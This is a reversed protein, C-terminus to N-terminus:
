LGSDFTSRKYKELSFNTFLINPSEKFANNENSWDNSLCVLMNRLVEQEELEPCTESSSVSPPEAGGVCM